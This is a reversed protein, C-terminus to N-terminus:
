KLRVGLARADHLGDVSQEELFPHSECSHFGDVDDDGCFRRGLGALLYLWVGVAIGIGICLM